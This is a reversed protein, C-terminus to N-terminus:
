GYAMLAIGCLAVALGASQGRGLREKLVVRALLVTSAPYMSTLVAALSLLGTRTALLYLINATVDLCGTVVIGSWPARGPRISTGTLLVIAAVTAISAGRAGLLPWLGAGAGTRELLIFFLGFSVGAGLAQPMGNRRVRARPSAPGADPSYSVAAIAALALAIGTLAAPSPREGTALGFLLPIVAAMVATTPAVVSMRGAALGGYLLAIGLGGGVGAVAGLGLDRPTPHGSGLALALGLEVLGAAQSLLVVSLVGSRRALLGGIFDATGYSIAAAIGLVITVPQLM